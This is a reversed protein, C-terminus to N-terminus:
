KVPPSSMESIETLGKVLFDLDQTNTYVNPTVRIGNIQEHVISVTHIKFRDFLRGEVQQAQWGEFGINAIGCSYQPKFSTVMKSKPLKVAKEAWYDKLFRLRAEKRKGGILNHFDIATGIAM